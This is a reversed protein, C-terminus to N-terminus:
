MPFRSDGVVLSVMRPPLISPRRARLRQGAEPSPQAPPKAARAHPPLANPTPAGVPFRCPGGRGAVGDAPRRRGHRNKPHGPGGVARRRVRQALCWRRWVGVATVDVRVRGGRHRSRRLDAGYVEGSLGGVTETASAVGRGGQRRPPRCKLGALQQLQWRRCPGVNM